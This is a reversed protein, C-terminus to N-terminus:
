CEENPYGHTDIRLLLLCTNYPGPGQALDRGGHEAQFGNGVLMHDRPYLM